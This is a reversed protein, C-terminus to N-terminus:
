NSGDFYPNMAEGTQFERYLSNAWMTIFTGNYPQGYENFADMLAEAIISDLDNVLKTAM